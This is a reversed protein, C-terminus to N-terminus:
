VWLLLLRFCLSEALRGAVLLTRWERSCWSNVLIDSFGENKTGTMGHHWWNMPLAYCQDHLAVLFPCKSDDLILPSVGAHGIRYGCPLAAIGISAIHELLYGTVFVSVAKTCGSYGTRM